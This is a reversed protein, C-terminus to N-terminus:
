VVEVTVAMSGNYGQLGDTGESSPDSMAGSATRCRAQVTHVGPSPTWDLHWLTWVDPGPQYDIEAPQWSQGGDVSIEVAAIPDDGCFATGLIRLTEAPLRALDEPQFVFTNPRFSADASWGFSEWFGLYPESVFEMSEIWKPNKMGYRGPVLLRVPYGHPKPLVEGNMRWVLWVPRSLDTVPISTTYGDACGFKLELVGEPVAIGVADFVELLPLGSWVANGIAPNHNGAGICELTHEKDRTELAELTALDISGLAAGRDLVSLAWTGGDVTPEGCCSTIYFDENSTVPPISEDPPATDVTTDFSPATDDGATDKPGDDGDCAALGGLAAAGGLSGLRLAARRTLRRPLVRFALNVTSM